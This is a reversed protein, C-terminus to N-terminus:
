CLMVRRVTYRPISGGPSHCLSFGLARAVPGIDKTLFLTQGVLPRGCNLCAPAKRACERGCDPSPILAMYVEESSTHPQVLYIAPLDNRTASRKPQVSCTKPADTM